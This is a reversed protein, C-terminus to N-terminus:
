LIVTAGKILANPTLPIGTPAVKLYTNSKSAGTGSFCEQGNSSFISLTLTFTKEPMPCLVAMTM